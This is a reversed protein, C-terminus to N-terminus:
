SRVGAWFACEHNQEYDTVVRNGDPRLSMRRGARGDTVPPWDPGPAATSVFSSWYDIMQEALRQQATNFAPAGGVDFLYQLELSHAAGIPFPAAQLPEPAPAGRDNFEYSYVPASAHADAIFDAVCAFDGATMAASYAQAVDGGFREPPYRAAVADAAPGFAEALLEPYKAADFQRGRLYQLATFFTFEDATTGIMVPVPAARGEAIGVVPNVPLVPTGTVPGSLRETGFRGYMLPHQFRDAPLARLCAAVDARDPCGVEAAYATSTLEATPLDYQAQCPASQIIAARFLGASGPAVLHDCVAMGGASEGAITVRDPDGGFAAINDRVWRLAAQQDALGYNGIADHRRPDRGLAPDALFGLAGLRYNITVVVIDGQSVLRRADYLDGSGNFFGGGHIWVMVARPQPSPPPTWVNVFLCDESTRRRDVETTVDQVCRAGPSSADRLGSWAAVPAPPQWRLPGVPPAAYPIGAFYRHDDATTGRLAGAATHVVAPDTPPDELVAGGRGCAALLAASVLAAVVTRTLPVAARRM